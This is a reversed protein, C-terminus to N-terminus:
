SYSQGTTPMLKRAGQRPRSPWLRNVTPVRRSVRYICSRRAFSKLWCRSAMRSWSNFQPPTVILTAQPNTRRKQKPLPRSRPFPFCAAPRPRSPSPPQHDSGERFDNALLAFRDGGIRLLMGRSVIYRKPPPRSPLACRQPKAHLLVSQKRLLQEKPLASGDHHVSAPASASAARKGRGWPSAMTTSPTFYTLMQTIALFYRGALARVSTNSIQKDRDISTAQSIYLIPEVAM